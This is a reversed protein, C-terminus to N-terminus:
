AGRVINALERAITADSLYVDVAIKLRGCLKGSGQLRDLFLLGRDSTATQDITKGQWESFPMITNKAEKFTMPTSIACWGIESCERLQGRSEGV